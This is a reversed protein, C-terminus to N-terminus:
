APLRTQTNHYPHSFITYAQVAEILVWKEPFAIAPMLSHFNSRNM